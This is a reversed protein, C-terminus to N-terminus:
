QKETHKKRQAEKNWLKIQPHLVVGCTFFTKDKMNTGLEAFLIFEMEDKADPLGIDLFKEIGASLYRETKTDLPQSYFVYTDLRRDKSLFVGNLTEMCNHTTNYWVHHHTHKTNTNLSISLTFDSTFPQSGKATDNFNHSASTTILGGLTFEELGKPHEQAKTCLPLLFFTLVVILNKM